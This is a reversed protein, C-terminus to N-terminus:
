SCADAAFAESDGVLSATFRDPDRYMVEGPELVALDSADFWVSVLNAGSSLPWPATGEAWAALEYRQGTELPIDDRLFTSARVNESGDIEVRSIRNVARGDRDIEVMAVGIVRNECPEFVALSDARWGSGSQHGRARARISHM